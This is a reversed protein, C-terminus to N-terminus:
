SEDEETYCKGVIIGKSEDEDTSCIQLLTKDSLFYKLEIKDTSFIHSTPIQKTGIMETRVPYNESNLTDARMMCKM